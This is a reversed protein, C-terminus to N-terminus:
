RIAAAVSKCVAEALIPPVANGVQSYRASQKGLFIFNDPFSQIRASECVTLRRVEEMAGSRPLKGKMLEAHYAAIKGMPDIIHTRNGGASAPITHGLGDLNLPRGKGNFMMGAYPSKRLIPNKCYVIKANNPVDEPVNKLIERVTTKANGQLGHSPAPFQFSSSKQSSHIGVLFLRLRNQAVGYDGANLIKSFVTYGLHYLESVRDELYSNFKTARLGAVNEMIFARPRAEDVARIFEPVMDRADFNGLRKGSVSFPQCPPGGAILDIGRYAAFNVDRIDHGIHQSSPFNRRHTLVADRDCEVAGQVNWGANKLGLSLGGAGCFLDIADMMGAIAREIVHEFRAAVLGM